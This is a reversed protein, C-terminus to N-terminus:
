NIHFAGKECFEAFQEIYKPWSLDRGFQLDGFPTDATFAEIEEESMYDLSIVSQGNPDRVNNKLMSFWADLAKRLAKALNSSDEATVLQNDNSHYSNCWDPNDHITGLPEWGYAEALNLVRPWAWINFRHWATSDETYLDYGM